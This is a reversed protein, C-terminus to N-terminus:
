SGAGNGGFGLENYLFSLTDLTDEVVRSIAKGAHGAQTERRLIIPRESRSAAQLRATMKRAHMPDVRTDSEYTVFLMAPYAVDDRVHHYPSYAFLWRLAQPDEASGFEGRWLRGLGSKEYRVMDLLPAGCVVARFLEPRQTMAAGVLLGGNSRGYIALRDAAVFGGTTLHESVAIFDDFVNQKRGRMGARHWEEGYEGGGRLNALAFVGGRAAWDLWLGLFAPPRSINFGGYGTLVGPASGDIPTSRDKVIFVPVSTGDKSRAFVQRVEFQTTDVTGSPRAWPQLTRSPIHYRLVEPPVTFSTFGVFIEDGDHNDASMGLISGLEPLPVDHHFAGAFADYVRLRSTVNESVSVALMGGAVACDEIVGAGEPVLDSWVTPTAPDAVAIKFRPANLNTLIYMRGRHIRIFTRADVGEIVPRLVRDGRLDALYVDTAEDTGTRSHLILWRGDLSITIFYFDRPDRGAGFIEEDQDPDSGIRHLYVRRHFQEEGRPVLDPALRRVYYFTEAGPLWAVSSYRTRDIREGLDRGSEVDMVYLTAEETGGTSLGYALRRGDASPVYYDLTTTMGPDIAVPDILTRESGDPESVVLVAHEQDGERRLFFKRGKRVDPAYVAGILALERLRGEIRRRGPLEDLHSRALKDQAQSWARVADSEPDELWRFPDRIDLGHLTEVVDDAPAHPYPRVRVIHNRRRPPGNGWSSFCLARSPGAGSLGARLPGARLPGPGSLGALWAASWSRACEPTTKLLFFM